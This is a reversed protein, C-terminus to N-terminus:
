APREYKWNRSKGEVIWELATAVRKSRTEQRKASAIWEAYERRCSPSLEAFKQGAAKNVELAQVLAEPMDAEARPAPKAVRQISRTRTGEGILKAAKRLYAELEPQPPLDAVSTLKGFSGMGEKSDIGGSRLSKAMETGWLGFSCHEKFASINGLIVGQYIFFPRSWKITEELEPVAHHLTDRLHTLIPQAFAGAKAIYADVAPHRLPLAVATM